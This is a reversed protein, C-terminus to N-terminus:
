QELPFDDGINESLCSEIELRTLAIYEALDSKDKPKEFSVAKACSLYHKEVGQICNNNNACVELWASKANDSLKPTPKFYKYAFFAAVMIVLVAVLLIIIKKM